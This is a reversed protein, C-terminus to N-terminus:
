RTEKLHYLHAGTPGPTRVAHGDATLSHLLVAVTRLNILPWIERAASHVHDTTVGPKGIPLLRALDARTVTAM